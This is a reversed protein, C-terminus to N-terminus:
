HAHQLRKFSAAGNLNKLEVTINDDQAAAMFDFITELIDKDVFKAKSGDIIIYSDGEIGSLCERLPAKNLFSIDKQLRLLYHKGDRTLSIASKFNARIVFFIGLAMGIAMGKLLDTLLIATITLAFPAFQDFGEGWMERIMAPKVLKYGTLLLVAALCALPILNLYRSLFMVSLFLLAGHVFSAVKTRGGANVNASSRVIVSTM